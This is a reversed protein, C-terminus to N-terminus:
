LLSCYPVGRVLEETSERTIFECRGVHCSATAFPRRAKALHLYWALRTNAILFSYGPDSQNTHYEFVPVKQNFCHRWKM